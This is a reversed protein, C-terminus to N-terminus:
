GMQWPQREASGGKQLRVHGWCLVRECENSYGIWNFIFSITIRSQERSSVASARALSLCRACIESWLFRVTAQPNFTLPSDHNTFAEFALLQRVAVPGRGLSEM